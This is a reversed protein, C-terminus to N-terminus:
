YHDVIIDDVSDQILPPCVQDPSSKSNLDVVQFYYFKQEDFNPLDWFLGIDELCINNWENNDPNNPTKYDHVNKGKRWTGAIKVLQRSNREHPRSRKDRYKHPIWGRNVVIAAREVKAPDDGNFTNKFSIQGGEYCYLPSLV